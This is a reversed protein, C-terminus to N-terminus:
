LWALNARCNVYGDTVDQVARDNAAANVLSFHLAWLKKCNTAHYVNLNGGVVGLLDDYHLSKAKGCDAAWVQTNQRGRQASDPAFGDLAVLVVNDHNDLSRDVANAIACGSSHGVIYITDAKSAQIAAVAKDFQGSKTFTTIASKARSNAGRPWAYASFETNASQAQASGLWVKMDTQTAQYGGFFAVYVSM